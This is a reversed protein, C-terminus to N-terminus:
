PLQADVPDDFLGPGNFQAREILLLRLKTSVGGNASFGCSVEPIEM